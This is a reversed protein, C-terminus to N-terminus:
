MCPQGGVGVSRSLPISLAILAFCYFATERLSAFTAFFNL